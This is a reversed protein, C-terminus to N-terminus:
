PGTALSWTVTQAYADAFQEDSASPFLTAALRAGISVLPSEPHQLAETVDDRLLRCLPALMAAFARLDIKGKRDQPIVPQWSLFHRLLAEVAHADQSTVADDGDTAVDGSLRVIRNVLKGDRYIAWENGTQTSSTRSPPSASSSTAITARSAAPTLAVGPAKLEM